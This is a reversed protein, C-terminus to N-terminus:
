SPLMGGPPEPCASCNTAGPRRPQKVEYLEVRCQASSATSPPRRNLASSGARGQAKFDDPSIYARINRYHARSSSASAARTQEQPFEGRAHVEVYLIPKDPRSLTATMGNLVDVEFGEVDIKVFDVRPLRRQAIFQDLPIVPVALGPTGEPAVFGNLGTAFTVTGEQAGVASQIAHCNDLHNSRLNAELEAFNEPEPEFCYM